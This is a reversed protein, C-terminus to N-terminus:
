QAAGDVTSPDVANGVGTQGPLKAQALKTFTLAKGSNWANANQDNIAVWFRGNFGEFGRNAYGLGVKRITM